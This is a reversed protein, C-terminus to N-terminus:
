RLTQPAWNKNRQYPAKEQTTTQAIANQASCAAADVILNDPMEAFRYCSNVTKGGNKLEIRFNRLLEILTIKQEILSLQM